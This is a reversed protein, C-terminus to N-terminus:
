VKSELDSGLREQEKLKLKLEKEREEGAELQGKLKDNEDNLRKIQRNCIQNQLLHCLFFRHLYHVDLLFIAM